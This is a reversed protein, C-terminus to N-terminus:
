TSPSQFIPQPRIDIIVLEPPNYIRPIHNLCLGRSVIM